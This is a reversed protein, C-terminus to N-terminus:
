VRAIIHYWNGGTHGEQWYVVEFDANRLMERLPGEQWYTFFRPGMDKAKSWDSGEGVKVTFAFVGNPKLSSHIRQLVMAIQEATFHLLVGSAYVMDYPSGFDDTLANLLRAHQEHQNMYDVFAQVADTPEVAFGKGEMYRADRGHASGLELIRAGPSLLVLAADVWEKVAGMLTPIAAANYEAAGSEYADLTSKNTDSDMHEMM